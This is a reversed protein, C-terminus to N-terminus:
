LFLMGAQVPVRVVLPNNEGKQRALDLVTQLDAAYALVERTHESIAVWAGAPLGELLALYDVTATAM